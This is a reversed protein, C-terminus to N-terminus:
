QRNKEMWKALADAMASNKEAKQEQQAMYRRVDSKGAGDRKRRAEFDSLKERYGCACAFTQKDGEGWLELKKHCNPCRANTVQTTRKRFGCERDPCVLLEGRKDKVLLLLKGCEPCPKRTQNDHTYTADSAKVDAVLKTAYKRMQAVFDADREQGKAIRALRDEWQATLAASRLDAPALQVLQIGKSTPVLTKGQREIYFASFLKEIIDARTAPTGLGSTEQLIKQLNKDAVQSVPHEMATLLTAETYRAPPATKGTTLRLKRVKLRQGKQLDPLRQQEEETEDDEDELAAFNKDYAAKWGQDLVRRGAATFTQDGIKVTLRIEEYEFPPMLVALFRRVVLDYINKEPGTLEYLSAAEETPIIAHHDTVKANNVLYKTQFPKKRQVAWALEKYEAQAVARLRDPLTPVVDDSIYRSDTRPYTLAKHREYLSQMLNLTEKASYAYKKNADRQLETLDYAAPPPTMKRMKSIQTIVAEKGECAKLLRELKERDFTRGSGKEDKWTARFGELEACLGYFERPVFRRIENEREVVLALTPTQVRGASLQANFKCTLARTVNLGVLWDAESRAQASRYLNDYDKAPKLNAFGERIAKDTQSSIWLRKAPKNWGAKQMIWRAVLEGERGADTAIVLDSVDGRKMLNAVVKYQRSSEPIVVLKMKEPLMPLDDMSWKELKKDYVDPDALTVLHGLAWTVVYRDGEMCGDGSRKCGLVRALEKGVSPKEALVLTKAM